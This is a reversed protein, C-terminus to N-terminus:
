KATRPRSYLWYLFHALLGFTFLEFWLTWDIDGGRWLPRAVVFLLLGVAMILIRSAYSKM